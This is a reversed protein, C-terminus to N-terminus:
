IQPWTLISGRRTNIPFHEIPISGFSDVCFNTRPITFNHEAASPLSINVRAYAFLKYIIDVRYTQLSFIMAQLNNEDVPFISNVQMNYKLKLFILIISLFYNKEPLGNVKLNNKQPKIYSNYL